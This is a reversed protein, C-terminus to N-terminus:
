WRSRASARGAPLRALPARRRHDRLPGGALPRVVIPQIVGQAAISDALERLADPDFDRRPQYRGRQILELPLRTIREGVPSPAM